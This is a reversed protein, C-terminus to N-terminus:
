YTVNHLLFMQTLKFKVGMLDKIGFHKCVNGFNLREISKDTIASIQEERYASLRSLIMQPSNDQIELGLGYLFYSKDIYLKTTYFVAFFHVFYKYGVFVANNNDIDATTQKLDACM